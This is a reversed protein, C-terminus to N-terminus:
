LWDVKARYRLRKILSAFKEYNYFGVASSILRAKFSCHRYQPCLRLVADLASKFCEIDTSYVQQAIRRYNEVMARVRQENFEGQERLIHEAQSLIRQRTRGRISTSQESISNFSHKRYLGTIGAKYRFRCGQIAMRLFYEFDQSVQIANDWPGCRQIASRRSLYSFLPVWYGFLLSEIIDSSEGLAIVTGKRAPGGVDVLYQGDGYVVDVESENQFVIVQESLKGCCLFDDGDLFQIFEGKAVKCGHNRAEQAGQHSQYICKVEIGDSQSSQGDKMVQMTGDSSGDDV